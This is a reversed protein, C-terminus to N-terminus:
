RFVVEGDDIACRYPIFLRAIFKCHTYAYVDFICIAWLNGTCVDGCSQDVFSNFALQLYNSMHSPFCYNHASNLASSYRSVKCNEIRMTRLSPLVAISSFLLYVCATLMAVIFILPWKARIFSEYYEM